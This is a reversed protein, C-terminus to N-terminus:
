KLIIYDIYGEGGINTKIHSNEIRDGTNDLELTAFRKGNRTFLFGTEEISIGHIAWFFGSTEITRINRNLETGWIHADQTTPNIFFHPSYDNSEIEMYLHGEPGTLKYCVFIEKFNIDGHIRVAWDSGGGPVFLQGDVINEPSKVEVFGPLDKQDFDIVAIADEMLFAKLELEKDSLDRDFAIGNFDGDLPFKQTTCSFTLNLLIFVGLAFAGKRFM